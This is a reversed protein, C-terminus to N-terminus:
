KRTIRKGKWEEVTRNKGAAEEAIRDYLDKSITLSIHRTDKEISDHSSKKATPQKSASEPLRDTSPESAQGSGALAFRLATEEDIAPKLITPSKRQKKM